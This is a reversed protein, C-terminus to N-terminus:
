VSFALHGRAAPGSDNTVAPLSRPGAGGGIVSCEIVPLTFLLPGLVALPRELWWILDPWSAAPSVFYNLARALTMGITHFLFLPLAFRNIVANLQSPRRRALLRQGVHTSRTRGPCLGM